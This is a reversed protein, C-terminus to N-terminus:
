EAFIKVTKYDVVIDDPFVEPHSLLVTGVAQEVLKCPKAPVTACQLVVVAEVSQRTHYGKPHVSHFTVLVNGTVVVGLRQEFFFKLLENLM